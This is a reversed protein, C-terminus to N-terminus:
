SLFSRIGCLRKRYAFKRFEFIEIFAIFAYTTGLSSLKAFMSVVITAHYGLPLTHPDFAVSQSNLEKSGFLHRHSSSSKSLWLNFNVIAQDIKAAIITDRSLKLRLFFHSHDGFLAISSM